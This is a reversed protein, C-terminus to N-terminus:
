KPSSLITGDRLDRWVVDVSVQLDADRTTNQQTRNTIRKDIGVVVGILETDAKDPDSEIRFTTTRQIENVIAQTIDAEIGRFPTTQFARNQFAHVYVTQINEDYLAGAGLKYGFITPCSQCGALVPPLAAALGLFRRRNLMSM